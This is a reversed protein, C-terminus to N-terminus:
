VLDIQGCCLHGALSCTIPSVNRTCNPWQAQADFRIAWCRESFRALELTSGAELYLRLLAANVDLMKESQPLQWDRTSAFRISGPTSPPSYDRVQHDVDVSTTYLDM